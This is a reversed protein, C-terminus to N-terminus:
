ENAVQRAEVTVAVCVACAVGTRSCSLTTPMDQQHRLCLAGADALGSWAIYRMAGARATDLDADPWTAIIALAEMGCPRTM